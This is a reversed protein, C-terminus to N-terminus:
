DDIDARRRAPKSLLSDPPSVRAAPVARPAESVEGQKGTKSKHKGNERLHSTSASADVPPPGMGPLNFQGGGNGGKNDLFIKFSGPQREIM